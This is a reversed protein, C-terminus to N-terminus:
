PPNSSGPSPPLPPGSPFASAASAPPEPHVLFALQGVPLKQSRGASPPPAPTEHGARPQAGAQGLPTAVSAFPHAVHWHAGLGSPPPLPLVHVVFASQALPLM